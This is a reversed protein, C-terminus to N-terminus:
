QKFHAVDFTNKYNRQGMALLYNRKTYGHIPFTCNGSNLDRMDMM